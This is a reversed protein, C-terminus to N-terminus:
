EGRGVNPRSDWLFTIFVASKIRYHHRAWFEKKAEFAQLDFCFNLLSLCRNALVEGTAQPQWHEKRPPNEGSLDNGSEVQQLTKHRPIIAWSTSSTRGLATLSTPSTVKSFPSVSSFKRMTSLTVVSYIGAELSIVAGGRPPPPPFGGETVDCHAFCGGLFCSLLFLEEGLQPTLQHWNDWVPVLGM